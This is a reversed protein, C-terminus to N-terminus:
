CVFKRGHRSLRVGPCDEVANEFRAAITEVKETEPTRVDVCGFGLRVGPPWEALVDLTGAQPM